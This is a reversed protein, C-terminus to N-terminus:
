SDTECFIALETDGGAGVARLEEEGALLIGLDRRM